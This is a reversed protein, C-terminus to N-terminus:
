GHTSQKMGTAYSTDYNQMQLSTHKLKPTLTKTPEGVYGDDAEAKKGDGLFSMM